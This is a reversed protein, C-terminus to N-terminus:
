HDALCDAFLHERLLVSIYELAIREPAPDTDLAAQGISPVFFRGVDLVGWIEVAHTLVSRREGIDYVGTHERQEQIRDGRIM